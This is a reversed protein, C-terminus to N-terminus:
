ERGGKRREGANRRSFPQKLTNIRALTRRIARVRGPSEPPTGSAVQAKLKMLEKKLDLEKDALEKESMKRIDKSRLIAMCRRM